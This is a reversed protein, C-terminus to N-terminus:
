AEEPEETQIKVSKRKHSDKMFGYICSIMIYLFLVIVEVILLPKMINNLLMSIYSTSLVNAPVLVSYANAFTVSEHYEKVTTNVDDVLKSVTEDLSKVREEVYKIDDADSKSNSLKKVSDLRAQCESIRQAYYSVNKQANQKQEFLEDYKESVTTYSSPESDNLSGHVVVSNKEYTAISNEITKLKEQASKKQRELDDIRYEYYSIMSNKNDVVSNSLIYATLADADYAKATTIANSLDSFSYGTQTSRFNNNKLTNVKDLLQNLTDAYTDVAILYDYDSYNVALSANGISENYGYKEFFYDRYCELVTNIVQAAEEDGFSTKSFDFTVKYKVPFFEVNLMSQAAQLNGNKEYAYKYVSIEDVAETPVVGDISIANRVSDVESLSHGLKTLAAEIVVPNKISNVDLVEGNPTLGKEAGPYNFGILSVPSSSLQHSFAATGASVMLVVLVALAIWGLAFRKLGNVIETLPINIKKDESEDNKLVINLHTKNNIENNQM